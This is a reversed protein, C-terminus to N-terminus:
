DINQLKNIEEITLGTCESITKINMNKLLMTKAIELQKEKEGQSIGEEFSIKKETNLILKQDEEYTMASQFTEQENLNTLKKEFDGVFGDGESLKKLGKTELDLMILHKYENVKPINKNYWYEMIKDMNYEIIKINPINDIIKINPVYKEGRDSQVCYEIYDEENDEIGYTFDFHIFQTKYDYIEGRQVKRSYITSFYIFNRIHLYSPIGVNIEIHIYEDDVKVLVDVTKVKELSNNVPLENRLFEVISVKKKLLRSLFEQLLYPNDEDCLVSKFVRDYKATYFKKNDTTM